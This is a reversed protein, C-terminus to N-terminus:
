RLVQVISYGGSPHMAKADNQSEFQTIATQTATWAARVNADFVDDLIKTSNRHM